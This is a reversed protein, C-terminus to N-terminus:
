SIIKITFSKAGVVKFGTAPVWQIISKQEVYFVYKLSKILQPYKYYVTGVKLKAM